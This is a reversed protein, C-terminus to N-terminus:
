FKMGLLLAKIQKFEASSVFWNQAEAFTKFRVPKSDSSNIILSSISLTYDKGDVPIRTVQGAQDASVGVEPQYYTIGDSKLTYTRVYTRAYLDTKGGAPIKESAIQTFTATSSSSDTTGSNEPTNKFEYASISISYKSTDDKTFSAVSNGSDDVTPPSASWVSKDYFIKLGSKPLTILPKVAVPTAEPVVAVKQKFIHFPLNINTKILNADIAAYAGAVLIVLGLLAMLAGPGKKKSTSDHALPVFYKKSDILEQLAAEKKVQEEAKKEDEKTKGSAEALADVGAAESGGLSDTETEEDPKKEETETKEAASDEPKVEADTKEEKAPETAEEKPSEESTSELAPAEKTPVAVTAEVPTEAKKTAVVLEAPKEKIKEKELPAKPTEQPSSETTRESAERASTTNSKSKIILPATKVPEETSPVPEHLITISSEQGTDLGTTEPTTLPSIIKRTVSPPALKEPTDEAGSVTIVTPDKIPTGPSTIVPRSTGMPKANGPKAVDFVKTDDISRPRGAM